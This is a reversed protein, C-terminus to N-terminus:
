SKSQKKQELYTKSKAFLKTLNSESLGIVDPFNQEIEDILRTQSYNRITNTKLVNMIAGLALLANDQDTKKPESQNLATAGVLATLRDIEAQLTEIQKQQDDITQNAKTLPENPRAQQANVLMEILTQQTELKAQLAINERQLQKRSKRPETEAPPLHTVSVALAQNPTNTQQEKHQTDSLSIPEHDIIVPKRKPAPTAPFAKNETLRALSAIPTAINGFTRMNSLNLANQLDYLPQFAQKLMEAQKNQEDLFKQLPNQYSSFVDSARQINTFQKAFGALHDTKITLLEQEM